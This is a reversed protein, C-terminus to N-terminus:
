KLPQRSRSDLERRIEDHRTKDINYRRYFVISILGPLLTLPGAIIGFQYVTEPDIEGPKAGTPFAILDMAIGALLHGLGTTLKGFFSRAAFFIGEQRRGSILEHEDTVDALTSAISIVMIASMCYSMGKFLCLIPFIWDSGNEPFLGTLRLIIPIGVAGSMGLIGAILADRKSWRTHIRPTFFSALTLGIPAGIIMYRMQNPPLEWFFIGLHSSLTEHLGLTASLFFIGFVLTRYNENNLCERIEFRLQSANFAPLGEPPQSLKPIQDRTFYASSSVVFITFVGIVAAITVYGDKNNQGGEITGLYSWALFFVAFNGVLGFITNFSMLVSRERYDSTMEAGLALHPVQYFTQATRLLITFTTFWAFLLMSGLGEPPSYIAYFCLAMPIPAAYLFPHRRGLKSRWRDSISGVLPDSIADFVLAITVALGCLTGSLELVNNYFLFNFANFAATIASEATAGLGYAARTRLPLASKAASVSGIDSNSM